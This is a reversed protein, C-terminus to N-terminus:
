RPFILETALRMEPRAADMRGVVRTRAWTSTPCRRDSADRRAEPVRPLGEWRPLGAEYPLPERAFDALAADADEIRAFKM